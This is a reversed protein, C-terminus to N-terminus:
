TTFCKEFSSRLHVKLGLKRINLDKRLGNESIDPALQEQSKM